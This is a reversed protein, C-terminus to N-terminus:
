DDNGCEAVTTGHDLIILRNALAKAAATGCRDDDKKVAPKLLIHLSENVIYIHLMPDRDQSYEEM